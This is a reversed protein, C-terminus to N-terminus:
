EGRFAPRRKEKFARVGEQYDQSDYVIRRLGQIREFGQPSMMHAGALIRLQEKMVAVSLPANEAIQAALKLTFAEIEPGPVVYNIMGHREARAADIPRGTITMEKAMRLGTANLLTLLGGVNYPIGLRAPTVAFTASQTAVVCDCAFVTETAGGWVSGEVMAIVPAPFNEIERVLQRLPDDWGLPDRRSEPLESVDHGASFVKAGQRARLIAVRVKAERFSGLAAVAEDVLPKSLANRHRENNLTITGIKEAVAAIIYPM